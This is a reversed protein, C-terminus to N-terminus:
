KKNGPFPTIPYNKSIGLSWARSYVVKYDGVLKRLEVLSEHRAYLIPKRVGSGYKLAVWDNPNQEHWPTRIFYM